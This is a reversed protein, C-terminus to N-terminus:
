VQHPDLIKVAPALSTFKAFDKGNFTLLNDIGYVVAVAMLRADHTPKGSVGALTVLRRWEPYIRADDPLLPFIAEIDALEAEAEATLFGLGNATIPRTVVAWFETCNQPCAYILSNQSRLNSLSRLAVAHSPHGREALRLLLNSDVLTTFSSIRMFERVAIMLFCREM